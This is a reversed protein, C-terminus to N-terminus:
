QNNFSIKFEHVGNLFDNINHYRINSKKACQEDEDRDGVFLSNNYDIMYGANWAEFEALALMGIDPKRLLSRHNFPEIKGDEMHYCMKVIHFPNNQFLKLTADMEKEIHSPRKHGHAVGGQNSIGIILYNMQRYRWILKEIGPMLEIDNEDQIFTGTKSKRITGDWDLFLAPVLKVMPALNSPTDIAPM